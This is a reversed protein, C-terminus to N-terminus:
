DAKKKKFFCVLVVIGVVLFLGVPLVYDLYGLTTTSNTITDLPPTYPPTWMHDVGTFGVVDESFSDIYFDWVATVVDDSKTIVLSEEPQFSYDLLGQYNYVNMTVIEHTNGAWYRASKVCYSFIIGDKIRYPEVIKNLVVHHTYGEIYSINIVAIAYDEMWNLDNLSDNFNLNEYSVISYNIQESDISINFEYACDVIESEDWYYPYVFGISSNQTTDSEISFDCFIELNYLSHIDIVVDANPMSVTTNSIIVSLDGAYVLDLPNGRVNEMNAFGSSLIMFLILLVLSVGRLIKMISIIFDIRNSKKM